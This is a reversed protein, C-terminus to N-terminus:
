PKIERQQIEAEYLRDFFEKATEGERLPEIKIPEGWMDQSSFGIRLKWLCIQFHGFEIDPQWIARWKYKRFHSLPYGEFDIFPHWNYKMWPLKM